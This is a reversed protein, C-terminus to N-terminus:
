TYLKKYTYSPLIVSKAQDKIAKKIVEKLKDSSVNWLEEKITKIEGIDQLIQRPTEKSLTQNSGSLHEIEDMMFAIKDDLRKKSTAISEVVKELSAM